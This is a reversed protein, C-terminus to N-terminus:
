WGSRAELLVMYAQSAALSRLRKSQGEPSPVCSGKGLRGLKSHVMTVRDNLGSCDSTKNTTNPISGLAECFGPLPGVVSGM